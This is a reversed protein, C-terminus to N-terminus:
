FGRDGRGRRGGYMERMEEMKKKVIDNYESKTVVKGKNPAVIKEKEGPNMVIKSCLITTKDANIELILGPLGWFDAPGQSVPIQPSYWAVIEIQKPIEINNMPDDDESNEVSNKSEDGEKIESKTESKPKKRRMSRWDFEDVDKMATAKFCTYKGIVKTESELKWNIKKLDESILFQKGFFDRDELYTEDKVNKYQRGPSFSKGMMRGWGGGQGPGELKEDEKYSSESKNFTLVYTKELFSKMRDMVQKKQEESMQNARDGWASFDFSTKSQYYAKGQFDQAISTLSIFGILLTYFLKM